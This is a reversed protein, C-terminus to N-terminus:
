SHRGTAPTTRRSGAARRPFHTVFWQAAHQAVADLTGPEEFLHTANPVVILQKECRLAELARENLELVVQDRAGVVLLTPARVRGLSEGALDPRGGRSVVAAIIEPCQAAAVLAAAAGTSAGFYGLATPIGPYTTLWRTVVVLREALLKIDFRWRRSYADDLDETETLLDFLLTGLGHERLERAVRANRPSLRSSGSGHAFLVVGAADNPIDLNGHLVDGGVPIELETVAITM